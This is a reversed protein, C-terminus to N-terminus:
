KCENSLALTNKAGSTANNLFCGKKKEAKFFFLIDNHYFSLAAYRGLPFISYHYGAFRSSLAIACIFLVFVCFVFFFFLVVFCLNFYFLYPLTLNPHLRVRAVQLSWLRAFNKKSKMLIDSLNVLVKPLFECYFSPDVYATNTPKFLKTGIEVIKPWLTACSLPM